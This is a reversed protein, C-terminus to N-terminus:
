GPIPNRVRKVRFRFKKNPSFKPLPSLKLKYDAPVMELELHHALLLLNAVMVLETFRSGLCTHTGGGFSQYAGRKRHENRPPAFRDIDFTDPNRFNEAMYHAAPFAVLVKSRAPCCGWSM